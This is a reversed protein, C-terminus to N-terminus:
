VKIGDVREFRKSLSKLDNEVIIVRENLKKIQEDRVRNDLKIDDIGRSIYELRSKLEVNETTEKKIDKASNKAFSLYSITISIITCLVAVSINEM